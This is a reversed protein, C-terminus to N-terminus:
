VTAVSSDLLRQAYEGKGARKLNEICEKIFPTYSIRQATLRKLQGEGMERQGQCIQVVGLVLLLNPTEGVQAITSSLLKEAAASSGVCLEAIACNTAAEPYPSQIHLARQSAALAEAYRGLKLQCYGLNFYAVAVDAQQRLLREWLGIAEEFEEVEAAQVALEYLAKPDSGGYRQLKDKGLRYYERKKEFMSDQDLYGYHHVVVPAARMEIKLQRLSPEVMEHIPNQFCIAPRNPFLRVKDSPTWGAAAEELPYHGDNRQWKEINVKVMYNRTTIIWAVSRSELLKKFEGYDLQSIVEDADMVLIWDGRAQELGANRAASFDGNWPVDVLDAGFLRAIDRTSDSSGTDVIVLEDVIPKLSALCRPLNKEENKVIMCLSVSQGASLKSPDIKLPGLQERLPLAAALIGADVGFRTVAREIEQLADATSGARILLDIVLYSLTKNDAFFRIADRFLGIGREPIGAACLTEHYSSISRADLPTLIFGRESLDLAAASDGRATALRARGTYALGFAPDALYAKHYWSDARNHDGMKEAIEGELNLVPASAGAVSLARESCLQAESIDGLGLHCLGERWLRDPDGAAFPAALLTDLADQYQTADILYDILATYLRLEHPVHRVGEQLLVEVADDLRWRQRLLDAKELTQLTLIKQAFALDTVPESWKETFGRQNGSIAQRYDLQNGWFSASGVHHIFVDGAVLNRYGELEARLCLDDDEFNGSGFREDLIGIQEILSRRFLMCFGVIRRLHIRRYRYRRRFTAAFHDLEDPGQYSVDMVKQPGSISNTMPGVIGVDSHSFCELMGTLWEPTIVVDNNLLMIYAGRSQQIGQNCGAAFGRNEANLVIRLLPDQRAQEHLWAASGDTSGNDIIIIEYPHDTHRRISALCEQTCELQNWTLVVISVLVEELAAGLGTRIDATLRALDPDREFGDELYYRYDDRRVAAGWRAFFHARNRDFRQRVAVLREELLEMKEAVARGHTIAQEGDSRELQENIRSLEDEGPLAAYLASIKENLTLSQHHIVCSDACYRIRMGLNHYAYCLDTDEWGNEYQEDFPGISLFEDRRLLM